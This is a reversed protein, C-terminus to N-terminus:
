SEEKQEDDKIKLEVGFDIGTVRILEGTFEIREGSLLDLVYRGDKSVSTRKIGTGLIKLVM